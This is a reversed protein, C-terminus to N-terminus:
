IFFLHYYMWLLMSLLLTLSNLLVYFLLLSLLLSYIQLFVCLHNEKWHISYLMLLMRTLIHIFFSVHEIQTFFLDFTGIINMILYIKFGSVSRIYHYSLIIILYDWLYMYSLDYLSIIYCGWLILILRLFDFTFGRYKMLYERPNRIVLHFLSLSFICTLFHMIFTLIGILSRLILYSFIYWLVDICLFLAFMM